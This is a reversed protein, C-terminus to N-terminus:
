MIMKRCLKEGITNRELVKLNKSETRIGSLSKVSLGIAPFSVAFVASIHTISRVAGIYKVAMQGYSLVSVKQNM